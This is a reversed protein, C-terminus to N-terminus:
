PCRRHTWNLPVFLSGTSSRVLIPEAQWPQSFVFALYNMHGSEDAEWVKFAESEASSILPASSIVKLHVMKKINEGTIDDLVACYQIVISTREIRPELSSFVSGIAPPPDKFECEFCSPCLDDWQICFKSLLCPDAFASMGTIIKLLMDAVQNTTSHNADEDLGWIWPCGLVISSCIKALLLNVCPAITPTRMRVKKLRTRYHDFLMPQREEHDLLLPQHGRWFRMNLPTQPHNLLLPQRGQCFLLLTQRGWGLRLNLLMRPCNLLLTQRGQRHNLLM